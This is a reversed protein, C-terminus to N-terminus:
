LEGLMRVLVALGDEANNAMAREYYRQAGGRDGSDQRLVGLAVLARPSAPDFAQLREFVEQARARQGDRALCAGHDYLADLAWPDANVQVAAAECAARDLRAALLEAAAGPPAGPRPPPVAAMEYAGPDDAWEPMALRRPSAAPAPEPPATAPAAPAPAAPAPEAPPEPLAAEAVETQPAEPTEAAAPAPTQAPAPPRLDAPLPSSAELAQALAADMLPDGTALAAAALDQTAQQMAATRVDRADMAAEAEALLPGSEPAGASAPRPTLMLEFMVANRFVTAEAGLIPRGAVAGVTLGLPREAVSIQRLDGGSPRLLRGAGKAGAITAQAESGSITVSADAPQHDFVFLLRLGSETTESRIDLIEARAAGGWVGPAASLAAALTFIAAARLM